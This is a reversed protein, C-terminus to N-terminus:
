GEVRNRGENKAKYLQQDAEALLDDVNFFRDADWQAVGISVTIQIVTGNLTIYCHNISTRVREALKKAQQLNTEPLLIVFEEGGIRAVIDTERALKSCTQYFQLLVQDGAAHGYNDNISKFFDIDLFMLSLNTKYRKSREVEALTLEELKRRNVAGTLPDTSALNEYAQKEKTQHLLHIDHRRFSVARSVDSQLLARRCQEYASVIYGLHDKGFTQYFRLDRRGNSLMILAHNIKSAPYRISWYLIIGSILATISIAGLQVANLALTTSGLSVFAVLFPLLVALIIRWGLSIHSNLKSIVKEIFSPKQIGHDNLHHEYFTKTYAMDEILIHHILWQYLFFNIEMAVNISDTSLLQQKLEPIKKAFDRHQKVHSKYGAWHCQKMLAEERSFHLSVYQELEDFIHGTIPDPHNNEIAESLRSIISILKKHDNDIANVGVSMGENWELKKM